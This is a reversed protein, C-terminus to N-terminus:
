NETMMLLLVLKQSSQCLELLLLYFCITRINLLCGSVRERLGWFCRARSPHSLEYWLQAWNQERGGSGAGWGRQSNPTRSPGITESKSKEFRNHCNKNNKSMHKVFSEPSLVTLYNLPLFLLFACLLAESDGGRGGAGGQLAFM